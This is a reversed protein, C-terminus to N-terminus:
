IIIYHKDPHNKAIIIYVMTILAMMVWNSCSPLEKPELKRKNQGMFTDTELLQSYQLAGAWSPLRNINYNYKKNKSCLAHHSLFSWQQKGSKTHSCTPAHLSIFSKDRITALNFLICVFFVIRETKRKKKLGLFNTRHLLEAMDDSKFNITSHCFLSRKMIHNLVPPKIIVTTLLPLRYTSCYSKNWMKWKCPPNVPLATM